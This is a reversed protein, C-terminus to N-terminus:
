FKASTSPLDAIDNRIYILQCVEASWTFREPQTACFIHRLTYGNAILLSNKEGPIDRAPDLLRSGYFEAVVVAPKPLSALFREESDNRRSWWWFPKAQNIFLNEHFYPEIGVSHFSAVGEDLLHTSAIPLGQDVYPKLFRATALDPSYDHKREFNVSYATWAIQTFVTFLLAAELLIRNRGAPLGDWIVWFIALLLVFKLGLHWFSDLALGSFIALLLVPVLFRLRRMGAMAVLVAAWFFLSLWWPDCLGFLLSRLSGVLLKVAPSLPAIAVGRPHYSVIIVDHAPYATWLAFACAAILVSAAALLTQKPWRRYSGDLFYVFSMGVAMVTAHAALNAMLGLLVALLVPNRKWLAVTSFLLIPVLVYSRAIVAYQFALFFTFPLLLRLYLPFPSRYLLIATGALAIAGCIWHVGTYGVGLHILMWLFLHWLGPSGEYHLYTHLLQWPTLSRALQWAQAEDAWPEHHAIAFAVLASYLALCITEPTRRSARRKAEHLPPHRNLAPEFNPDASNLISPAGPCSSQFEDMIASAGKHSAGLLIGGVCLMERVREWSGAADTAASPVPSQLLTAM